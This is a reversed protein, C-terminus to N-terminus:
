NVKGNLRKLFDTVQPDDGPLAIKPTSLLEEHAQLLMTLLRHASHEIGLLYNERTFPIGDILMRAITETEVATKLHLPELTTYSAQARFRTALDRIIRENEAQVTELTPEPTAKDDSM